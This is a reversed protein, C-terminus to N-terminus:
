GFVSIVLSAFNSPSRMIEPAHVQPRADHSLYARYINILYCPHAVLLSVVRAYVPQHREIEDPVKRSLADAQKTGARPLATLPPM